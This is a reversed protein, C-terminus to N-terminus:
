STSQMYALYAPHCYVAKIYIKFKEWNQVLENNWTQNYSNNRSRYVFKAPPLNPPRTDGHRRFNELENHDVCDFTNTYDIFCFNINESIKINKRHDLLHLCSSRQNVKKSNMIKSIKMFYFPQTRVGLRLSTANSLITCFILLSM